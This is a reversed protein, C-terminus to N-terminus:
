PQVSWEDFNPQVDHVMWCGDHEGFRNLGTQDVLKSLTWTFTVESEISPTDDYFPYARVRAVYTHEDKSM